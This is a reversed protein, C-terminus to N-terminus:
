TIAVARRELGDSLTSADEDFLTPTLVRATAFGSWRDVM